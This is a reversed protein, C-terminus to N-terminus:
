YEVLARLSQTIRMRAHVVPKGAPQIDSVVNVVMHSDTIWALRRDVQMTGQLTGVTKGVAGRGDEAHDHSVAGHFSIYAVSGRNTLSDLRFTTNVDASSPRTASLPVRMGRTWSQGVSVPYTPLMPPMETGGGYSAGAGTGVSMGGGEDVRLRVTRGELARQADRLPRLAATPPSIRVSDTVSLLETYGHSRRLVIARTWVRMAGSMAGSPEGGQMEFRQELQMRLTDGEPPAIRLTVRQAMAPAAAFGCAVILSVAAAASRIV